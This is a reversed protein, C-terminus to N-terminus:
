VIRKWFVNRDPISCKYACYMFHLETNTLLGIHKPLGQSCFTGFIYVYAESFIGRLVKFLYCIIFFLGHALRIWFKPCCPRCEDHVLSFYMLASSIINDVHRWNTGIFSGRVYRFSCVETKINVPCTEKHSIVVAVRLRM